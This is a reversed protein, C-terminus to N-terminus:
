KVVHYTELKCKRSVSLDKDADEQVFLSKIRCHFNEMVRLVTDCLVQMAEKKIKDCDSWAIKYLKM